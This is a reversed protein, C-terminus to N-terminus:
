FLGKIFSIIKQFINPKSSKIPTQSPKPPQGTSRNISPSALPTPTTFEQQTQPVQTQGSSIPMNRTELGLTASPYTVLVGGGGVAAVQENSFPGPMCGNNARVVFYYTGPPLNGIRLGRHSGNGYDPVGWIYRGSAIGYAITWSTARDAGSWSIDVYTSGISTPIFLWPQGPKESGCTPADKPDGGYALVAQPASVLILGGLLLALRIKNM